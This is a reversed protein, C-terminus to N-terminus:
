KVLPKKAAHSPLKRETDAQKRDSATFYDNLRSKSGQLIDKFTVGIRYSKTNMIRRVWQVRGIVFIPDGEATVEIEIPVEKNVPIRHESVFGLGGKSFDIVQTHDFVSGKKGDVPVVCVKRENKRHDAM